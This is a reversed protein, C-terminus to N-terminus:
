NRQHPLLHRRVKLQDGMDEEKENVKRMEKKKKNKQFSFRWQLFAFSWLDSTRDHLALNTMKEVRKVKIFKTM